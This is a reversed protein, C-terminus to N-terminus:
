TATMGGDVVVESGTMYRSADSALFVVVEAIEEVEGLRGAPIILGEIVQHAEEVSSAMGVGVMAEFVQSGMMTDIIGPHVSNVRIGFRQRAFEVALHKTMTRVAGKSAGYASFGPAGVIGAVSSLNIISGGAGAAGGPRMIESAAKVGLFISEVNVRNLIQLSELEDTDLLGGLFIGANNVLADLRGTKEVVANLTAHWAGADTVDQKMATAALGESRLQEAQEQASQEDLDTLIAHAGAEALSRACAAGIGRGAGTVVASRGELSFANRKPSM